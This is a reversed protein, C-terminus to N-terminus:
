PRSILAFISLTSSTVCASRSANILHLVKVPRVSCEDDHCQETDRMRLANRRQQLGQACRAAPAFFAVSIVRFRDAVRATSCGPTTLGVEIVPDAYGGCAM